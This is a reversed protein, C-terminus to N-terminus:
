TDIDSPLTPYLAPQLRAPQGQLSFKRDKIENLSGSALLQFLYYTPQSGALPSTVKKGPSRQSPLPPQPEHLTLQQRHRTTATPCLGLPHQRAPTYPSGPHVAGSPGRGQASRAPRALEDRARPFGEERAPRANLGLCLPAKERAEKNQQGLPQETRLM